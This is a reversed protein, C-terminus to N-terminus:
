VLEYFQRLCVPDDKSDPPKYVLLATGSWLQGLTAVISGDPPLLDGQSQTLDAMKGLGEYVEDGEKKKCVSQIGSSSEDGNDLVVHHGEREKLDGIEAEGM